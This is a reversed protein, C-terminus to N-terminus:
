IEFPSPQSMCLLYARSEVLEFCSGKGECWSSLLAPGSLHNEFPSGLGSADADGPFKSYICM